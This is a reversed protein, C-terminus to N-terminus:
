SSFQASYSPYKPFALTSLWMKIDHLMQFNQLTRHPPMIYQFCKLYVNITLFAIQLNNGLPQNWKLILSEIATLEPSSSTAGSFWDEQYLIEAERGFLSFNIGFIVVETNFRVIWKIQGKMSIIFHLWSFYIWHRWSRWGLFVLYITLCLSFKSINLAIM